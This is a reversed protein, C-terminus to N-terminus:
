RVVVLRKSETEGAAQVRYFYTGSAMGSVDIPLTHPGAALARDVWTAVRQGITNYVEIRVHGAEPLTFSLEAHEQVPNPAHGDLVFADAGPGEAVGLYVARPAFTPERVSEDTLVHRLSEMEVVSPQQEDPRQAKMTLRDGPEAGATNTISSAGRVTAILAGDIAQGTGVRAGDDTEVWVRTQEPWVSGTAVLVAASERGASSPEMEALTARAQMSQEQGSPYELTRDDALYVMYGHGPELAGITNIPDGDNPYYINGAVDKVLVLDGEISSLADDVPLPDTPLYTVFNWGASLAIPDSPARAEGEVEVDQDGTVFIQYAEDPHWTDLNDLGYMPSFTQGAVDKVLVVDDLIPELMEEMPREEQLVRASALNWGNNLTLTQTDADGEDPTDNLPPNDQYPAIHGMWDGEPWAEQSWEALDYLVEYAVGYEGFNRLATWFHNPYIFQDYRSDYEPVYSAPDLGHQDDSIREWDDPSYQTIGDAYARMIVNLAKRYEDDPMDRLPAGQSHTRDIWGPSLHRIWWGRPETTFEDDPVTEAVQVMKMFASVHRWYHSDPANVASMHMFHYKWDVPSHRTTLASGPNITVQHQYWATDHYRDMIGSGPGKGGIIHPAMDFVVRSRSTWQRPEANEDYLDQAHEENHHPQFIEFTKVLAWKMPVQRAIEYEFPAPAGYPPAWDNKIYRFLRQSAREASEEVRWPRDENILDPVENVYWDWADSEEFDSGWVDLPHFEPLWENWDPMQLNVPLERMNLKGDIAFAGTHVGNPFLFDKIEADYDLVWDLGAGAAWYVQDMEDMSQGMTRADTPGRSASATEGPQYPPNWPRGPPAITQGDSTEIDVSRIYAAIQKGEAESLGHFQSRREISYNSYAFYELDYGGEVHCDNCSAIIDPGDWGEVLLDRQHWLDRGADVSAPDDYGDPAGWSAPDDWETPTVSSLNANGASQVQLDLVRFGMSPDGMGNSGVAYNVRFQVVNEGNQVTGLQDIPIRFRITPVPGTVCDQSAEPEFCEVTTNNIDVWNGGNLRVSAKDTDYDLIDIHHSPYGIAHAQMYVHAAAGPDEVQLSVSRTYGDPGMVEIPYVM